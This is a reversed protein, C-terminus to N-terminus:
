EEHDADDEEDDDGKDNLVVYSLVARDSGRYFGCRLVAATEVSRTRLAATATIRRRSRYRVSVDSEM